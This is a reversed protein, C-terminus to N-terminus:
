RVRPVDRRALGRRESLRQADEKGRDLRWSLLAGAAPTAALTVLRYGCLSLPMSM